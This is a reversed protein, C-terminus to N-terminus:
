CGNTITGVASGTVVSTATGCAISSQGIFSLVAVSVGPTVAPAATQAELSMLDTSNVYTAYGSVLSEVNNLAM